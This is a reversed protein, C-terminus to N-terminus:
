SSTVGRYEQGTVASAPWRLWCDLALNLQVAVTV